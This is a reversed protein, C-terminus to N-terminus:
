KQLIGYAALIRDILRSAENKTLMEIEYDPTLGHENLLRRLREKQPRTAPGEKKAKYQLPVPLFDAANEERGFAEALKQYLLHTARADELARHAQMPIEFYGCLESLRRSPLDSLFKRSLKLTDVANREFPLGMNVAARKLFSYDFLVGHGLLPLDGAFELFHPMVEWIVPAEELDSQTIGTLASIKEPLVKGPHVFSAFTDAIQGSRVRVAGIEIIKDLKPNLGTTELDVCLYDRVPEGRM